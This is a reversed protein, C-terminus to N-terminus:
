AAEEEPEHDACDLRLARDGFPADVFACHHPRDAEAHVHPRFYRCTVCMRQVPIEGREQLERIVASLGRLLSALDEASLADVAALLADPWQASEAALRAGASTATLRAARGDASDRERAVLGKRVLAAVADSTTPQTVGLTRALEGVRHPERAALTALAQAQTPTLGDHRRRQWAHHRLVLGLKAIATLASGTSATEGFAAPAHQSM